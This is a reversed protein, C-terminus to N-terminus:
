GGDHSRLVCEDSYAILTISALALRREENGAMAFPLHRPSECLPTPWPQCSGPPLPDGWSEAVGPALEWGSGRRIVTANCSAGPLTETVRDEADGGNKLSVVQEDIAHFMQSQAEEMLSKWAPREMHIGRRRLRRLGEMLAIEGIQVLDENDIAGNPRFMRRALEPLLRHCDDETKPPEVRLESRYSRKRWHGALHAFQYRQFRLSPPPNDIV